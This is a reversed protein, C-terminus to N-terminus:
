ALLFVGTFPTASTLTKEHRSVNQINTMGGERRKKMCMYVMYFIVCGIVTGITVFIYFWMKDACKPIDCLEISKEFSKDDVFCWPREEVNGPNSYLM